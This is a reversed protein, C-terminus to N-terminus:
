GGPAARRSELWEALVRPTVICRDGIRYPRMEGRRIANSVTGNRLGLARDAESPSMRQAWDGLVDAAEM